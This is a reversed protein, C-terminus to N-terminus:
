QARSPFVSRTQAIPEVFSSVFEFSVLLESEMESELTKSRHVQHAGVVEAAVLVM